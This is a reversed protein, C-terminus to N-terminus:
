RDPPFIRRRSDFETEGTPLGYGGAVAGLVGGVLYPTLASSGFAPGAIFGALLGAVVFIPSFRPDYRSWAVDGFIEHLKPLAMRQSDEAILRALLVVVIAGITSTIIQSM